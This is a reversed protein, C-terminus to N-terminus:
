QVKREDFGASAVLNPWENSAVLEKLKGTVLRFEGRTDADVLEWHKNIWRLSRLGERVKERDNTLPWTWDADVVCQQAHMTRRRAEAIVVGRISQEAEGLAKELGEIVQLEDSADTAELLLNTTNQVYRRAEDISIVADQYAQKRVFDGAISQKVQVILELVESSTALQRYARDLYLEATRWNEQAVARRAMFLDASGELAVPAVREPSQQTPSDTQAVDSDGYLMTTGAISAVALTTLIHKKWRM